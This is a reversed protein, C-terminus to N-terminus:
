AYVMHNSQKSDASVQSFRNSYAQQLQPLADAFYKEFLTAVRPSQEVSPQMAALDYDFDRVNGLSRGAYLRTDVTDEATLYNGEVSIRGSKFVLQPFPCFRVQIRVGNHLQTECYFDTREDVKVTMPDFWRSQLFALMAPMCLLDVELIVTLPHDIDIDGLNDLDRFIAAYDDIDLSLAPDTYPLPIYFGCGVTRVGLRHFQEVARPLSRYNRKQLTMNVFLRDGLERVAWELNPRMKAFAGAGRNYDHDSEIGDVSIDLNDLDAALIADRHLHLLTGNSVAGIRTESHIERKVRTLYTLAEAGANGLFMEKGSLCILSPNLDFASRFVKEWEASSLEPATCRNVQLYCHKCALNCVNNIIMAVVRGDTNSRVHHEIDKDDLLGLLAMHLFDVHPDSAISGKIGGRVGSMYMPM